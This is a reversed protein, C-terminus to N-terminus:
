SIPVTLSVLEQGFSFAILAPILIIPFYKLGYLPKGVRIVGILISAFLATIGLAIFAITKMEDPKISLNGSFLVITGTDAKSLDVGVNSQINTFVALFHVAISLLFPMVIIVIFGLFVTYSGTTSILEQRLEQIKRIEEANAFLLTALHGGASAGKSFLNITKRLIQSDFKSSLSSLAEDLSIKAGVVNSLKRVEEYLPSFEPRAASIFSNYPTMGARLNSEILLLFDPLIKEVKRARGTIKFFVDIFNVVVTSVFIFFFVAVANVEKDTPSLLYTGGAGIVSFLFTVIIASGFWTEPNKSVGAYILKQKVSSLFKSGFMRAVLLSVQTM